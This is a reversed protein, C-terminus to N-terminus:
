ALGFRNKVVAVNLEETHGSITQVIAKEKGCKCKFLAIEADIDYSGHIRHTMEVETITSEVQKYKHFLHM